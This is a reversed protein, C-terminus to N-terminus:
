PLRARQYRDGLDRRGGRERAADLIALTVAVVRRADRERVSTGLALHARLRRRHEVLFPLTRRGFFRREYLLLNRLKYYSAQPSWGPLSSGADHDVICRCALGLKWGAKRARMALDQEEAYHFYREDFFGVTRLLESRLFLSCGLVMDADHFGDDCGSCFLHEDGRLATAVRRPQVAAALVGIGPERNMVRLLAQLADPRPRADNNLIWILEAGDELAEAIGRNNGGAYGLNAGTQRLRVGPRSGRIREESGDTSGNDVVLVDHPATLRDLADLCALTDRWGNWNLVVITVSPSTM